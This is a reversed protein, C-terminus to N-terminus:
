KIIGLNLSLPCAVVVVVKVAEKTKPFFGLAEYSCALNGNPQMGCPVQRLVM